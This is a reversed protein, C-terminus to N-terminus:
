HRVEIVDGAELLPDEEGRLLRRPNVSYVEGDRTVTIFRPDWHWTYQATLLAQSLSLGEVWPVRANRIDGRFWVAPQQELQEALLQQRAELYARQADLKAKSRSVCGSLLVAALLLGAINTGRVVRRPRHGFSPSQGHLTMRVPTLM